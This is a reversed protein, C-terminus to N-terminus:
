TASISIQFSGEFAIDDAGPALPPNRPDGNKLQIEVAGFSNRSVIDGRAGRRLTLGPELELTVKNADRHLEIAKVRGIQVGQLTVPDKEKLGIVKVFKAHWIRRPKLDERVLHVTFKAVLLIAAIYVAVLAVKKKLPTGEVILESRRSSPGSSRM